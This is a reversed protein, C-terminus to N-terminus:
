RRQFRRLMPLLAAIEELTQDLEQKTTHVSFSFRLASETREKELGMAQLTGSKTQKHSSCASGSSVYIGKDELSHLLVESRIGPFSANVIHPADIREEKKTGEASVPSNLIVDPLKSLEAVFDDKLAYLRNTDEEFNAYALEEKRSQM